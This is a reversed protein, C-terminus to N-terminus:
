ASQDRPTDADETTTGGNQRATRAAEIQRTRQSGARSTSRTHHARTTSIGSPLPPPPPRLSSTLEPARERERNDILAQLCKRCEELTGALKADGQWKSAERLGQIAHTHTHKTTCTASECVQMESGLQLWFCVFSQFTLTRNM